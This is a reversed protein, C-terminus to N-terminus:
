KNQKTPQGNNNNKRKVDKLTLINRRGFYYSQKVEKVHIPGLVTPSPICFYGPIQPHANEIIEMASSGGGHRCKAVHPTKKLSDHHSPSHEANLALLRPAYTRSHTCYATGEALLGADVLTSKFIPKPTRLRTFLANIQKVTFASFASHYPM